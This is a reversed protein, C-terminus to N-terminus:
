KSSDIEYRQNAATLELALDLGWSEDLTPLQINYNDIVHNRAIKHLEAMTLSARDVFGSEYSGIIISILEGIADAKIQDETM